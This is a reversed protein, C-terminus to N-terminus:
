AVDQLANLDHDDIEFAPQTAHPAHHLEQKLQDISVPVCGHREVQLGAATNALRAADFWSAGAGRACGLVSIFQDGAGTVDHIARAQAPIIHYHDEERTNLICGDRDQKVIAADLNLQDWLGRAYWCGAEQRNPVICSAGSFKNWNRDAPPDVICPIGTRICARVIDHTMVGKAYDAILIVDYCDVADIRDIMEVLSRSLDDCLPATSECDIRALQQRHRGSAVGCIREKVTTPRSDDAVPYYAVGLVDLLSVLRQGDRDNGTVGILTTSAGLAACMAAVAAAGGPRYERTPNLLIPVPAEPSIRTAEGVTYVDLILDGVVLVKVSPIRNLLDSNM